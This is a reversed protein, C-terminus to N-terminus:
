KLKDKSLFHMKQQKKYGDSEDRNKNMAQNSTGRLGAVLEQTCSTCYQGSKISAGCRECELVFNGDELIEIRGEKLFRKIKSVSVGVAEAVQSMSAGRFEYLYAKVNRFDEEDQQMCDPCLPPGSLHNFLKGCKVCNRAFM